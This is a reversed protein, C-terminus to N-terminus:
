RCAYTAAAAIAAVYALTASTVAIMLLRAHYIAAYILCFAAVRLRLFYDAAMAADHRLMLTTLM